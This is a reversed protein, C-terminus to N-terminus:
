VGGGLEGSEKMGSQKGVVPAETSDRRDTVAKGLQVRMGETQM